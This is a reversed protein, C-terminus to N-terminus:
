CFEINETFSKSYWSISRYVLNGSHLKPHRILILPVIHKFTWRCLIIAFITEGPSYIIYGRINVSHHIEKKKNNRGNAWESLQLGNFLERKKEEGTSSLWLDFYHFMEIQRYLKKKWEVWKESLHWIVSHQTLDIFFFISHFANAKWNCKIWACNRYSVFWWCKVSHVKKCFSEACFNFNWKHTHSNKWRHKRGKGCVIWVRFVLLIGFINEIDRWDM